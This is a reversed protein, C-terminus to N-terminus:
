ANSGRDRLFRDDPVSLVRPPSTAVCPRVPSRSSAELPSPSLLSVSFIILYPYGYGEAVVCYCPPLGSSPYSAPSSQAAHITSYPIGSYASSCVAAPVDLSPASSTYSTCRQSHTSRAHVCPSTQHLIYSPHCCQSSPTNCSESGLNTPVLFTVLLFLTFQRCHTPVADCHPLAFQLGRFTFFCQLRNRERQVMYPQLVMPSM